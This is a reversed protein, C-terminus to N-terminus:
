QSILTLQKKEGHTTYTGIECFFVTNNNPLTVHGVSCTQNERCTRNVLGVDSVDQKCKHLYLRSFFMFWSGHYYNVGTM